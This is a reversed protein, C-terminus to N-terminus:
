AAACFTNAVARSGRSAFQRPPKIQRGVKWRPRLARNRGDGPKEPRVTGGLGPWDGGDNLTGCTRVASASQSGSRRQKFTARSRKASVLLLNASYILRRGLSACLQGQMRFNVRVRM